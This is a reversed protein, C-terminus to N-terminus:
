LQVWIAVQGVLKDLAHPNLSSRAEMEHETTTNM